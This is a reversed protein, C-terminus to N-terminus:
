YHLQTLRTPDGLVAHNWVILGNESIPKGHRITTLNLYRRCLKTVLHDLACNNNNVRISVKEKPNTTKFNNHRMYESNKQFMSVTPFEQYPYVILHSRYQRRKSHIRIM